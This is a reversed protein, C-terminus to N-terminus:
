AQAALWRYSRLGTLRCYSKAHTEIQLVLERTPALIMAKPVRPGRPHRAPGKQSLREIIPLLFAATKGAGTEASAAIDRGAMISPIAKRQIETPVTISLKNLVDV